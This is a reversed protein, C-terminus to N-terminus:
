ATREKTEVVAFTRGATEPLFLACALSVIAGGLALLMADRLSGFAIALLPVLYPAVSGILRGSTFITSAATSRMEVPYLEAFWPGFQGISAQGFGWLLYWWFLPWEAFAGPFRSGAASYIGAVGAIGILTFLLVARRRGWADSIYGAAIM